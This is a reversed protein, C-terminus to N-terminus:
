NHEVLLWALPELDLKKVHRITVRNEPCLLIPLFLKPPLAGSHGRHRRAQTLTSSLFM